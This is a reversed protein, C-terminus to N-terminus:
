NTYARDGHLLEVEWECGNALYPRKFNAAVLVLFDHARSSWVTVFQACDKFKMYGTPKDTQRPEPWTGRVDTHAVVM